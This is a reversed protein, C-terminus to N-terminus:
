TGIIMPITAFPRLGIVCAGGQERQYSIRGLQECLLHPLGFAFAAPLRVIMVIQLRSLTLSLVVESAARPSVAVGIWLCMFGM